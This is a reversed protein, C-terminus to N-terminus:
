MSATFTRARTCLCHRSQAASPPSRSTCSHRFRWVTRRATRSSNDNVVGPGKNTYAISRGDPSWRFTGRVQLAEFGGNIGDRQTLQQPPGGDVSVKMVHFNWRKNAVYAISRGDPSWQPNTEDWSSRTLMRMAGTEVDIVGINRWGSKSSVFAL